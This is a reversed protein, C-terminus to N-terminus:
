LCALYDKFQVSRSSLVVRIGLKQCRRAWSCELGEKDSTSLCIGSCMLLFLVDESDEQLSSTTCTDFKCLM